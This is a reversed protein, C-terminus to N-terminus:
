QRAATPKNVLEKMWYTALTIEYQYVDDTENAQFAVAKIDALRLSKELETVFETFQEYTAETGFRIVLTGFPNDDFIAGSSSVQGGDVQIGKIPLGYQGALNTIDLMLRINDVHDPLFKDLLALEETSFTNQKDVLDNRIKEAQKSTNLADVYQKEEEKLAKIEKYQPDVYLFFGAVSVIILFLPTLLKM